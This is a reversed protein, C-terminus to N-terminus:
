YCNVPAVDLLGFVIVRKFINFM